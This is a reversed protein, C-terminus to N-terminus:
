IIGENLCTTANAPVWARNGLSNILKIQELSVGGNGALKNKLLTQIDGALKAAIPNGELDNKKISMIVLANRADAVAEISSTASKRIASRLVYLERLSKNGVYQPMQGPMIMKGNGNM